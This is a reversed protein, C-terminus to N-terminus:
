LGRWWLEQPLKEGLTVPQGLRPTVLPLKQKGAEALVREVPETWAHNAETFAAWHVPLMARAQVDRAAQVSQEPRMHIEAWQDDYQGCEM